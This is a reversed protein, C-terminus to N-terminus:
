SMLKSRLFQLRDRTLPKTFLDALQHQTPVFHLLIDKKAVRERVFHFDIEVHKTLGHFIPNKALQLASSNDCRLSPPQSVYVRLDRLLQRVWCLETATAALARYEAETSSRSMTSQKKASWSIPNAGLFLVFGTTSRRDTSDGAWDSDSFANLKYIDSSSRKFLIGASATGHLYRLIRKAAVLHVLSPCHLFQSLKSVSFSIDPRTFTLYHLAGILSRFNSADETSCL